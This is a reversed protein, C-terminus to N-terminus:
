DTVTPKVSAPIMIKVPTVSEKMAGHDGGNDRLGDKQMLVIAFEEQVGIEM